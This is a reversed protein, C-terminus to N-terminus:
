VFGQLSFKEKLDELRKCFDKTQENFNKELEKILIPIVEGFKENTTRIRPIIKQILADDINGSEKIYESIHKIDRYGVGLGIKSLADDIIKLIEAVEKEVGDDCNEIFNDFNARLEVIFARSKLRPSLEKTTEDINITGVIYLNPPFPIKKKIGYKAEIEDSNHIDINGRTEMASLIDSLYHEPHSLNMEDLILFFEKEKKENARSLFDYLPGKVFQNGIPNFYGIVDKPSTWNPAVRIFCIYEKVEEQIREKLLKENECENIVRELTNHKVAPFLISLLTKGTGTAGALIVFRNGANIAAYFKELIEDSYTINFKGLKKMQTKFDELTIGGTILEYIHLTENKIKGDYFDFTPVEISEVYKVYKDPQENDSLVLKLRNDIEEKDSTSIFKLSNDICMVSGNYTGWVWHKLDFPEIKEIIPVKRLEENKELISKTKNFLVEVKKEIEQAKPILFEILNTLDIEKIRYINELYEFIQMYLEKIGADLMVFLPSRWGDLDGKFDSEDYIVKIDYFYFPIPYLYFGFEFNGLPYISSIKLIPRNRDTSLSIAPYSRSGEEVEEVTIGRKEILQKILTACKRLADMRADPDFYHTMSECGKIPKIKFNM